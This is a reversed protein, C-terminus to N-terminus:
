WRLLLLLWLLLLLVPLPPPPPAAADFEALGEIVDGRGAMDATNSGLSAALRRMLPQLLMFVLEAIPTPPSPPGTPPLVAVDKDAM